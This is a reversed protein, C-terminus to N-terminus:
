LDNGAYSQNFSKNIIPFDPVIADQLAIPLAAWNNVSPDTVKITKIRDDDDVEIFYCTAGRWGEVCGFGARSPHIEIPLRNPSVSEDGHNAPIDCSQLYDLYEQILKLSSAVERRRIRFRGLVDGSTEVVESYEGELQNYPFYRRIDCTHNSARAVYGYTSLLEANFQSLVGTGRMRDRAIGHGEILQCLAEVESKVKEILSTPPKEFLITENSNLANRLVRHGTLRYNIGSLTERVRQAQTNAISLAADNALAGLDSIHNSVRELELLLSRKVRETEGAESSLCSEFAQLLALGHAIVSDGTVHEAVRLADDIKRGIFAEEVGRSLFGLEIDLNLISEGIVSFCFYGPEIVGAHVPGVPIQTVGEDIPPVLEKRLQISRTDFTVEGDSDHELDEEFRKAVYFVERLSPIRIRLGVEVKIVIDVLPDVSKEFSAFIYHVVRLQTDGSFTITMLRFGSGKLNRAEEILM